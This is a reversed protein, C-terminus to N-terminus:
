IRGNYKEILRKFASFLEQVVDQNEGLIELTYAISEITSLCEKRPEKRINGYLSKNEPFIVARKLKVLWPNRWWLTKAQAWTGDLIVIGEIKEKDVRIEEGKKNFFVIESQGIGKKIRNLKYKSGLFLVIWNGPIVNNGEIKSLNSISLCTKLKSNTLILNALRATGLDKDPEQPHQLILVRTKNVQPKISSCVCLSLDKNCKPCAATNTNDM